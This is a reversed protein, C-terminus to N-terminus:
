EVVIMGTMVDAHASCHYPYAGPEDFVTEFKQGMALGRSNQQEFYTHYPHSETNVFHEIADSNTWVVKTGSSIRINKPAFLIDKLDVKIEAKDRQDEFNSLPTRDIKFYFKGQTCSTDIFCNKYSVVYEGDPASTDLAVRAALKSEDVTTDSRTFESAEDSALVVTIEASTMDLDSNIVIAIPAVPYKDSHHPTTDQIHEGRVEQSQVRDSSQGHFGAWILYAGLLIVAAAGFIIWGRTKITM